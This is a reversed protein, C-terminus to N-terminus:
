ALANMGKGLHVTGYPEQQQPTADGDHLREKHLERGLGPSEGKGLRWRLTKKCLIGACGSGRGQDVEAFRLVARACHLLSLRLHRRHILVFVHLEVRVQEDPLQRGQVGDDGGGAHSEQRPLHQAFGQREVRYLMRM